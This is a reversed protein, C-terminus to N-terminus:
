NRTTLQERVAYPHQSRIRRKLSSTVSIPRPTILGSWIFIMDIAGGVLTLLHLISEIDTIM